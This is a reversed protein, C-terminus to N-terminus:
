KFQKWIPLKFDQFGGGEKKKKLFFFGTMKREPGQDFSIIYPYSYLGIRNPGVVIPGMAQQFSMNM